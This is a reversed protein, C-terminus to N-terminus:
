NSMTDIMLVTADDELEAGDLSLKNAMSLLINDPEDQYIEIFMQKIKEFGYSIGNSDKRDVLGDSYIIIKSNVCNFVNTQYNEEKMIGIPMNTAPYETIKDEAISLVPLHGANIIELINNHINIKGLVMTVFMGNLAANCVDINIMNMLQHISMDSQAFGRILSSVKVMLLSANVGKGSVDGFSFLYEDKNLKIYDYFDGSLYRAPFNFGSFCSNIKYNEPILKEQTNRASSIETELRSSYYEKAEVEKLLESNLKSLEENQAKIKKHLEQREDELKKLNLANQVLGIVTDNDWPKPIYGYLNCKNIANSLVSYETQGTIVIQITDPSLENLKIFLEMGSMKPMNMDSIVVDFAIQESVSIAEQASHVLIIEDIYKKLLRRLSTCVAPEDDVILIRTQNMTIQLRQLESITL